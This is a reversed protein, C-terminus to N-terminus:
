SPQRALFDAYFRDHTEFLREVAAAADFRKLDEFAKALKRTREGEDAAAKMVAAAM